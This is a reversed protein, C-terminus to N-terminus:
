TVADFRRVLLLLVPAGVIGTVVGIPLERPEIVVRAIVDAWVLVIAGLLASAVIAGRHLPGVLRRALHPVALGVFGIGGSVSVAVAICLAVVVILTRRTRAADVGLSWASEDGLGLVDLRRRWVHLFVIAAGVVTATPPLDSWSAQGLSGLLWFLVARAGEQSDAFLIMTSTVAALLQSIAIGAVLVRGASVTGGQRSLVLVAAMAALAGAFAVLSTSNGGLNAGVGFLIAAAAGTSAGSTVGLVYPEAMPNGVVCQLVLGSVALAPGVVLALMVRPLRVEWIIADTGSSWTTTDPLGVTHHGIIQVVTGPGVAVAGLGIGVVVTVALTAVLLTLVMALRRPAHDPVAPKTNVERSPSTATATM